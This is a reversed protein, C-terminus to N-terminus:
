SAGTDTAWFLEELEERLKLYSEYRDFSLEDAQVAEIVACGPEDIHTCNAFRCKGIYPRMEIFYGDLEAPEVNWLAISRIGPTDAVYGGGELPFLESHRTTHRGKTTAASVQKVALGLGPQVANLLSTKGVGSSGALVSVKGTLQDRLADIGVGEVASTYLVTYGIQEYLEFFERAMDLGVLDIKNVCVVISPIDAAEAAVILRDLKRLSPIPDAISFVFVAQDPNAIIVQERDLPNVGRGQPSPAARSLARVREEVEEILGTGDPLVTITVRDGIVCIDTAREELEKLRRYEEKLRGRLECVVPGEDTQVTFFGSQSKIVLGKRQETM